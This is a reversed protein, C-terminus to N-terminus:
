HHMHHTYHLLNLFSRANVAFISLWIDALISDKQNPGYTLKRLWKEKTNSLSLRKCTIKEKKTIEKRCDNLFNDSNM